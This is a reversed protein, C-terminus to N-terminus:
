VKKVKLYKITNLLMCAHMLKCKGYYTTAFGAKSSDSNICGCFYICFFHDLKEVTVERKIQFYKLIKGLFAGGGRCGRGKKM